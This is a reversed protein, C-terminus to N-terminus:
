LLRYGFDCTLASEDFERKGLGIWTGQRVTFCQACTQDYLPSLGMIWDPSFEGQYEQPLFATFGSQVSQPRDNM